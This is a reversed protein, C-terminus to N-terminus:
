RVSEMQTNRDSKSTPIIGLSYLATVITLLGVIIWVFLYTKNLRKESKDTTEDQNNRGSNDINININNDRM